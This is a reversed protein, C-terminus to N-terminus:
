ISHKNIYTQIAQKLACFRKYESGYLKKQPLYIKGKPNIPRGKEHVEFHLHPGTAIGSMGVTGLSINMNVNMGSKVFIMQMHAYRTIFGNGHSVEVCRGYGGKWGAFIVKGCAAPLIHTGRPAEFDIGQHFLKQGTIPHIRWGFGSSIRTHRVRLPKQFTKKQILFGKEDFFDKLGSQYEFFYLRIAQGNKQLEIYNLCPAIEDDNPMKIIDYVMIFEAGKKLLINQQKLGVVCNSIVSSPAGLKLAAHYFSNSVKGKLCRMERKIIVKSVTMKDLNINLYYDQLYYHLQNVTIKTGQKKIDFFVRHEKSPKIHFKKLLKLLQDSQQSTLFDLSNRLHKPGKILITKSFTNEPETTAALPEVASKSTTHAITKSATDNDQNISVNEEAIKEKVAYSSCSSCSLIAHRIHKEGLMGFIIGLFIFLLFAKHRM